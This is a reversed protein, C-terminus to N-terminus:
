KPWVDPFLRLQTIKKSDTAAQKGTLQCEKKFGWMVGNHGNKSNYTGPEKVKIRKLYRRCLKWMIRFGYRYGTVKHQGSAETKRVQMRTKLGAGPLWSGPVM